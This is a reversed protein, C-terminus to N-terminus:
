MFNLMGAKGTELGQLMRIEKLVRNETRHLNLTAVYLACKHLWNHLNGV